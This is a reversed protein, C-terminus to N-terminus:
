VRIRASRGTAPRKASLTRRHGGALALEARDSATLPLRADHELTLVRKREEIMAGDERPV